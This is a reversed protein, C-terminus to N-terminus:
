GIKISEQYIRKLSNFDTYKIVVDNNDADYFHVNKNIDVMINEMEEYNETSFTIVGLPRYKDFHNGIQKLTEFTINNEKFRSLIYDGGEYSSLVGSRDAWLLVGSATGTYGGNQNPPLDKISHKVGLSNDILWDLVNFDLLGKYPFFTLEGDLRSSGVCHRRHM